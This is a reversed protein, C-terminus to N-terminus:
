SPKARSDHFMNDYMVSSRSYRCGPVTSVLALCLAVFAIAIWM